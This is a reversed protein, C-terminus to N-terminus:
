FLGASIACSLKTSSHKHHLIGIQLSNESRHKRFSFVIDLVGLTLEV